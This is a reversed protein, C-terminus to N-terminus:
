SGPRGAESARSSFRRRLVSVAATIAFAAGVALFPDVYYRHRSHAWFIVSVIWFALLQLLLLTGASPRRRTLLFLGALGLLLLPAYSLTYLMRKATPHSRSLEDGTRDPNHFISFAAVTKRGILPGIREPHARLSDLAIREFARDVELEPLSRIHRRVERPLANWRRREIEDVSMEPFHELFGPGSSMFLSKGRGTLIHIRDLHVHNRVVWPSLVALLAATGLLGARVTGRFGARACVAFWLAALPLFFLIASRTLVALGALVGALLIRRAGPKKAARYLTVTLLATLLRFLTTDMVQIDHLVLPPYLATFLAALYGVTRSGTLRAGVRYIAWTAALALLIQFAGVTGPHRGLSAYVGALALPFLPPRHAVMPRGHPNVKPLAFGKGDLLGRALLDWNMDGREFCTDSTVVVAAARPVVVAAFLLVVLTV